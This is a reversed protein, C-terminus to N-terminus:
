WAPATCSKIRHTLQLSRLASVHLVFPSCANEAICEENVSRGQGDTYLVGYAPAYKTNLWQTNKLIAM